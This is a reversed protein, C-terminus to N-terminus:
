GPSGAGRGSNLLIEFPYGVVEKLMCKTRAGSRWWPEVEYSAPVFAIVGVQTGPRYIKAYVLRSRRAHPGLTFVNLAEPHIGKEQLAQWAAVASKYTREREIQGIPAAIIKDRPIGLRLLEQGAMEAYTSRDQGEAMQGGTAVINRYGGAKFEAAAARLGEPGIWGEVVLVEAPVRQTLSFFSEGFTCLWIVGPIAVVLVICLSGSLIRRWVKRRKVLHSEMAMSSCFSLV